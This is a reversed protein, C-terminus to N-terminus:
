DKFDDELNHNEFKVLWESTPIFLEGGMMEETSNSFYWWGGALDSLDKLKKIEHQKITSLGFTFQADHPDYGDYDKVFQWLTHELGVLWGACWYDESIQSMYNVLSEAAVWDKTTLLSNERAAALAAEKAAWVPRLEEIAKEHAKICDNCFGRGSATLEKHCDSCLCCDEAHLRSENVAKTLPATADNDAWFREYGAHVVHCNGCAYAYITGDPSKLEIPNM